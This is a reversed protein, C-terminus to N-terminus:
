SERKRNGRALVRLPFSRTRSKPQTAAFAELLRARKGHPTKALLSDWEALTNRLARRWSRLDGLRAELALLKEAALERVRRCPTGGREREGFIGALDSVSLGISLASRIL